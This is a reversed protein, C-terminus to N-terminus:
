MFSINELETDSRIFIFNLMFLMFLKENHIENKVKDFCMLYEYKKNVNVLKTSKELYNIIDIGSYAKEYLLNVLTILKAYTISKCEKNLKIKLWNERSQKFDEINIIKDLNYKHLNIVKDNIMPEPVYIDCLRSLIPKLLKYKDEIIIFFRTNKSFLEICRRLAALGDTTLKDANLLIISKFLGEKININTKAFFKLEDRIFKIGKGHSCNVYSVYMQIIERNGNYIKNIFYDIITRKGSGSAGHFIINPIKNHEVYYDLKKYIETHINLDM